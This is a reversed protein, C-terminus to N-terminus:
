GRARTEDDIRWSTERRGRGGRPMRRYLRAHFGKVTLELAEVQRKRRQYAM